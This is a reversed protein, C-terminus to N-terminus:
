GDRAQTEEVVQLPERERELDQIKFGKHPKLAVSLKSSQFRYTIIINYIFITQYYRLM